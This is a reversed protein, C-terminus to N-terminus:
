EGRSAPHFGPSGRSDAAAQWPVDASAGHHRPAPGQPLDRSGVERIGRPNRGGHLSVILDSAGLGTMKALVDDIARQSADFDDRVNDVLRLDPYLNLGSSLDVIVRLRQRGVWAGELLLADAERERVYRWDVVVGDYHQFFTPRAM